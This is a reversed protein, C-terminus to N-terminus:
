LYKKPFWKRAIKDFKLVGTNRIYNQLRQPSIHINKSIKKSYEQVENTSFSEKKQIVYNMVAKKLESKTSIM